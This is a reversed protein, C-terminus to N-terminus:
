GHLIRMASGVGNVNAGAQILALSIVNAIKADGKSLTSILNMYPGYNDKTTKIGSEISAVTSKVDEALGDILAKLKPNM